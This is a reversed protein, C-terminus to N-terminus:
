LAMVTKWITINWLNKQQLSFVGVLTNFMFNQAEYIEHPFDCKENGM